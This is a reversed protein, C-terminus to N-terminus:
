AREGEDGPPLLLQLLERPLQRAPHFEASSFTSGGKWKDFEM